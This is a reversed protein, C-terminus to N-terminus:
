KKKSVVLINKKKNFMWSFWWKTPLTESFEKKYTTSPLVYLIFGVVQPAFSLLYAILLAHRHGVTLNKCALIFTLFTQPLASLIVIIPTIYLEKQEYFQKILVQRFITNGSTKNRSRAVLIILLTIGIIQLCFPLLYHILTSVRNYTSISYASFNTVCIPSGTSTHQQIITNCIIEHIHMSFLCFLTVVSIGITLRPKKLATSTPFLISFLRDITVWSTLWYTSRTFVTFLYSVIKCSELNIIGFIIQIFKVLLFFLSLQNFCTIIFLYNGVGVKRPTPRKFTVFSCLNNFFGVIFLLMVMSLYVIMMERSCDVLLSDITFGFAQMNFECRDGRYCQPCLCIFDNDNHIDGKICKGNSLCEDCHDIRIDHLFCDVRYHDWQCICLYDTDVFCLLQSQSDNRCIQHYKFIDPVHSLNDKLLSSGLLCQEPSSSINISSANPRLYFIFYKPQLSDYHAKLIGLAPAIPLDHAYCIQSPFRRTAQQHRLVLELTNKDVDYFQITSALPLEIITSTNLWVQIAIKAHQCRDGYFFKSCICIFSDGRYAEYTYFAVEM